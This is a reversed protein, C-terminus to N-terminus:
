QGKKPVEKEEKLIKKKIDKGMEDKEKKMVEELHEIRKGTETLGEGVKKVTKGGGFYIFLLFILIGVVVGFLFRIM